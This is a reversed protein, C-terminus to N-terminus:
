ASCPEVQEIHRLAGVIAQVQQALPRAVPARDIDRLCAHIYSATSAADSAGPGGPLVPASALVGGQAPVCLTDIRQGAVFVDMRPTRRADAVPEGETGRLLMADDGSLALFEALSVAYEPHTHNVVRWQARASAAGSSLLKALTHGSNRLGTERRVALLRALPPCLAATSVFVPRGGAWATDLVRAQAQTAATTSALVPWGLAEFVAHSTVRGPDDLLGHVLVACGREALLGALLPTLNPLKRAGNYSPLWVVPRPSRGVAEVVAPALHARTAALFGALESPSEGKIRMAIAFAGLQVESVRGEYVQRLLDEAQEPDLSRAGDKGRGIERLYASISM